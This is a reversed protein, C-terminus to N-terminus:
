KKLKLESKARKEDSKIKAAKEKAAQKLELPTKQGKVSVIYIGALEVKYTKQASIMNYVKKDSIFTMIQPGIKAKIFYLKMFKYMKPLNDSIAKPLTVNQAKDRKKDIVYISAQQKTKEILSQQEVTKKATWRNLFYLAAVILAVVIIVIIFIEGPSM